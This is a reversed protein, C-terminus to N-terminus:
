SVLSSFSVLISFMVLIEILFERAAEVQFELPRCLVPVEKRSCLLAPTRTRRVVVVSARLM